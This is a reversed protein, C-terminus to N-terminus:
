GHGLALVPSAEPEPYLFQTRLEGDEVYVRVSKLGKEHMNPLVFKTPLLHREIVARLGRAGTKREIALNAVLRLAEPEFTLGVGDLKFQYAFQETISNRTKSLVCVLQDADLEKLVAIVPLRGVLEPILGYKTLHEADVNALVTNLDHKDRGVSTANFGISTSKNMGKEVIKDIGVFAGGLVFLINRTNVKVMEGHASKRSGQSPVSVDSGEIIKLLAQQVGEGSIDRAGSATEGRRAKKDIEDLYIIGTEARAVDNDAAQLLRAIISEVDDGVYGAETLATADAIAFPVDLFKAISRAILTKGSGTPGVLLVNSKDLEMGDRASRLRKYHDYVAVSVAMLPEDQGVITERLHAHIETPTPLRAEKAASPTLAGDPKRNIEEHCLEICEDCIFIDDPGAILKRVDTSPKRCFSCSMRQEPESM